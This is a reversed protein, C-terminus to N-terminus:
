SRYRVTAFGNAIHDYDELREAVAVHFLQWNLLVAAETAFKYGALVGVVNGFRGNKSSRRRKLSERGLVKLRIQRSRNRGFGAFLERNCEVLMAKVRARDDTARM